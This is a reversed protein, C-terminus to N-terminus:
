TEFKYYDVNEGEKSFCEGAILSDMKYNDERKKIGTSYYSFLKGELKGEKFNMEWKIKGDDHYTKWLGDKLNQHYNGESELTGKKNFFKFNGIRFNSDLTSMSGTSHVGGNVYYDVIEFGKETKTALRYYKINEKIDTKSWSADYFITDINEQAQTSSLVFLAFITITHKM